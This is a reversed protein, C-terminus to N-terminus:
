NKQTQITALKGTKTQTNTDIVLQGQQIARARTMNPSILPNGTIQLKTGAKNTLMQTILFGAEGMFYIKGDATTAFITGAANIGIEKFGTAVNGNSGQVSRWQGSTFILLNGNRIGWITSMNAVAVRDVKSGPM